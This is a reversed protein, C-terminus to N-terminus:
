THSLTRAGLQKALAAREKGIESMRPHEIANIEVTLEERKAELPQIKNTLADRQARLNKTQELLGDAELGLEDFRERPSQEM